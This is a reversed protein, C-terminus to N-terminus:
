VMWLRKEDERPMCAFYLDWYEYATRKEELIMDRSREKREGLGRDGEAVTTMM